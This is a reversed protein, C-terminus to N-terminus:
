SLERIARLVTEIEQPTNVVSCAVRAYSLRYPTTSAVIRQDLLGKAVQEPKMGKVDFCVIGASLSEDRPTYLQINPMRALGDKMQGNLEHIRATIRGPGINQHFHIATPLAWYHEFAQFGGPSFWTARAPPKPDQEQEWAEFIDPSTFTPIVPRMRQWVGPKAWVFGTGRPGFMWKHTGAAFADCGLATIRPDEVGLGHVGDVILLVRDKEERGRNAEAIREAIPAIPLRVGSSSHVWTVGVARTKPGIAKRVREAIEDSSISNYSDFLPIKRWTAGCRGTALRVSEHHVYHDHTTTLVEDGERLPLGHYLLALGTTTNQTLAIDQPDGGIYTGIARCVQLPINRDTQEFLANEVTLLPNADIKARYQEIADRVARPHSALFFLALHIYDPALEFERRVSEWDNFDASSTSKTKEAQVLLPSLAGAALSLSGNILFNRRTLAM